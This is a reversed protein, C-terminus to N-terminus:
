GTINWIALDEKTIKRTSKKVEPKGERRGCQRLRRISGYCKKEIDQASDGRDYSLIGRLEVYEDKVDPNLSLASLVEAIHGMSDRRFESEWMSTSKNSQITRMFSEIVKLLMVFLQSSRPINVEWVSCDEPYENGDKATKKPYYMNIFGKTAKTVLMHTLLQILWQTKPWKLKWTTNSYPCKTELVGITWGDSAVLIGDPTDGLTFRREFPPPNFGPINMLHITTEKLIAERYCSRTKSHQAKMFKMFFANAQPEHKSGHSMARNKYSDTPTPTRPIWSSAPVAVSCFLANLSDYGVSFMDPTKSGNLVCLRRLATWLPGGQPYCKPDLVVVEVKDYGQVDM